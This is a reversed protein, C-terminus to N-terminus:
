TIKMMGVMDVTQCLISLTSNVVRRSIIVVVVVVVVVVVLWRWDLLFTKPPGSMQLEEM